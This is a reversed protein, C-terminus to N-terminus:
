APHESNSEFRLAAAAARASPGAGSMGALRDGTGNRTSEAPVLQGSRGREPKVRYSRETIDRLTTYIWPHGESGGALHVFFAVASNEQFAEVWGLLGV